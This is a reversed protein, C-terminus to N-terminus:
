LRAYLKNFSNVNESNFYAILAICYKIRDKSIEPSEKGWKIEMLPLVTKIAKEYNKDSRKARGKTSSGMNNIDASNKNKINDGNSSILDMFGKISEKDFGVKAYKIFRNDYMLADFMYYYGDIIDKYVAKNWDIGEKINTLKQMIIGHWLETIKDPDKVGITRAYDSYMQITLVRPISFSNKRSNKVDKSVLNLIDNKSIKCQELWGKLYTEPSNPPIYAVDGVSVNLARFICKKIKAKSDIPLFNKIVNIKNNQANQKQVSDYNLLSPIAAELM